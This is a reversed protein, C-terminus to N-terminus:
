FTERFNKGTLLINNCNDNCVLCGWPKQENAHVEFTNGHDRTIYIGGNYEIAAILSFDKSAALGVYKLKKFYSTQTFSVGYDSSYYLYAKEGTSAGGICLLQDGDASSVIKGCYQSNEQLSWTQGYDTSFFNNHYGTGVVIKDGKDNMAIGYAKAKAGDELTLVKATFDSGYKSSRYIYGKSDAAIVVKGSASSVVIKPTYKTKETTFTYENVTRVEAFLEKFLSIDEQQQIDVFNHNIGFARIFGFVGLIVSSIAM